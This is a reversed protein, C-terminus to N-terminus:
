ALSWPAVCILLWIVFMAPRKNKNYLFDYINSRISNYFVQITYLNIFVIFFTYLYLFKKAIFIKKSHQHMVM